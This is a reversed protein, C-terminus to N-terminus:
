KGGAAYFQGVQVKDYVGKSVSVWAPKHDADCIRLRWTEPYYTTQPVQVGNVDQYTTVSDEEDHRKAVVVGQKSEGSDCGPLVFIGVLVFAVLAIVAVELLTHKM